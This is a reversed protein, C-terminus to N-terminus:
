KPGWKPFNLFINYVMVCTSIYVLWLGCMFVHLHIYYFFMGTNHKEGALLEQPIFQTSPKSSCHRLQVYLSFQIRFMNMNQQPIERYPLYFIDSSDEDTIDIMDGASCSIIISHLSKINSFTSLICFHPGRHPNEGKSLVIDETAVPIIFNNQLTYSKKIEIALMLQALVTRM